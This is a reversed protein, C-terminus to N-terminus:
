TLSRSEDSSSEESSSTVEDTSTDEPDDLHQEDRNLGATPLDPSLADHPEVCSKSPEAGPILIDCDEDSERDIRPQITIEDIGRYRVM